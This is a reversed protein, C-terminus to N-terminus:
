SENSEPTKVDLGEGELPKDSDVKFLDALDSIDKGSTNAEDMGEEDDKADHGESEDESDDMSENEDTEDESDDMTDNAAPLTDDGAGITPPAQAKKGACGFALLSVGLLLLVLIKADM